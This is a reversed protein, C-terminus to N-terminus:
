NGVTKKMIEKRLHTICLNSYKFLISIYPNLIQNKGKDMDRKSVHVGVMIMLVNIDRRTKQIYVHVYFCMNNEKNLLMRYVNDQVNNNKM